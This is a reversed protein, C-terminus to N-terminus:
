LESGNRKQAQFPWTIILGWKSRAALYVVSNSFIYKFSISFFILAMWSGFLIFGGFLSRFGGFFPNWCFIEVDFLCFVVVFRFPWVVATGCPSFIGIADTLYPPMGCHCEDLQDDRTHHIWGILAKLMPNTLTLQEDFVVVAPFSEEFLLVPSASHEVLVVVAPLSEELVPGPSAPHQLMRWWVYGSIM